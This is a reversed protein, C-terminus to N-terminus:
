HNKVKNSTSFGVLEMSANMSGKRTPFIFLTNTFKIIKVKNSLIEQWRVGSVSECFGQPKITGLNLVVPIAKHKVVYSFKIDDVM